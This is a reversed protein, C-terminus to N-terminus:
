NGALYNAVVIVLGLVAIAAGIAAYLKGATLRSGAEQGERLDVRRSLKNLDEANRDISSQLKESLAELTDRTVFHSAQDSLTARFENVSDFRRENAQLALDVAQKMSEFRQETRREVANIQQTLYERLSVDTGTSTGAAPDTSRSAGGGEPESM